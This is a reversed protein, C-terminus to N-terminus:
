ITDKSRSRHRGLPCREKLIGWRFASNKEGMRALHGVLRMRRSKVVTVTEPSFYVAHLKENDQKKCETEM